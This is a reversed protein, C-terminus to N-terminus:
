GAAYSCAGGRGFGLGVHSLRQFKVEFSHCFVSLSKVSPVLSTTICRRM